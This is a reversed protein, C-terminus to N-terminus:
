ADDPKLEIAKTFDEIAKDYDGKEFYAISRWYYFYADDPNLKIAKTFYEIAKDCDGAYFFEQGEEFKREAEEKKRKEKEDEEKKEKQKLDKLARKILIKPKKFDATKDLLLNVKEPTIPIILKEEEGKNTKIEKKTETESIKEEAM